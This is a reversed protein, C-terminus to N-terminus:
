KFPWAWDFCVSEDSVLCYIKEQDVCKLGTSIQKQLSHLFFLRIGLLVGPFCGAHLASSLYGWFMLLRSPVLACSSALRATRLSSFSFSPFFFVIESKKWSDSDTDAIL